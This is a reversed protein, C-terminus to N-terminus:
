RTFAALTSRIACKGDPKSTDFLLESECGVVKRVLEAVEGASLGQGNDGQARAWGSYYHQV